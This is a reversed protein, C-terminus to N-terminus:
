SGLPNGYSRETSALAEMLWGAVVKALMQPEAAAHSAPGCLCHQERILQQHENDASREAIQRYHQPNQARSRNPRL